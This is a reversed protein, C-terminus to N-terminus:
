RPFFTIKHKERSKTSTQNQFKSFVQRLKVFASKLTDHKSINKNWVFYRLQEDESSPSPRFLGLITYVASFGTIPERRILHFLGLILCVASFGAIPEWKHYFTQCFNRVCLSQAVKGHSLFTLLNARDFLTHWINIDNDPNNPTKYEYLSYRM